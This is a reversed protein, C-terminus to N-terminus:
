NVRYIYYDCYEHEIGDYQALCGRGDTEEIWDIIEDYDLLNHATAWDAVQEYGFNEIAWDIGSSYDNNLSELFEYEEKCNREKMEEELRNEEFRIDDIYGQNSETMALDFWEKDLFNELVHKKGWESFSDLGMDDLLEEQYRAFEEKADDANLVMYEKGDIEVHSGSLIEVSDISDDVNEGYWNLFEVLKVYCMTM